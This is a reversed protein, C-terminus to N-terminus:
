AFSALAKLGLYIALGLALMPAQVWLLVFMAAGIVIDIISVVDSIFAIGKLVLALAAAAQLHPIPYGLALAALSVACLLDVGALLVLFVM